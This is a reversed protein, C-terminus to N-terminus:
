KNYKIKNSFSVTKITEDERKRTKITYLYTKGFLTGVFQRGILSKAIENESLPQYM